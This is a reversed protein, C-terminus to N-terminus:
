PVEYITYAGEEFVPVLGLADPDFCGESCGDAVEPPGFWVYRANIEALLDRRAEDTMGGDFFLGATEHKEEGNLTEPGHGVYVRVGAYAPLINGSAVSSMVVSDQPVELRLYDLAALEEAPHYIPWEPQSATALGGALLLIDSPLMLLILGAVGVWQLLYPLTIGKDPERVLEFIGLTALVSLPM